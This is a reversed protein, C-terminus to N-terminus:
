NEFWNLNWGQDLGLDLNLDPWPYQGIDDFLGSFTTAELGTFSSSVMNVGDGSPLTHISHGAGGNEFVPTHGNTADSLATYPNSLPPTYLQNPSEHSPSTTPVPQSPARIHGKNRPGALKAGAGVTITGFYPVTIKCSAALNWDKKDSRTRYIEGLIHASEAAVSGGSEGAAQHLIDVIGGILEWDREDEERNHDPSDESYGHLHLILLMAMTFAMFDITKCLYSRTSSRLIKYLVLSERASQIAMRHCFNFRPNPPYKLMFPLHLVSRLVKPMFQMPIRELYHERTENPGPESGLSSDPMSNWADMLERDLKLTNELCMEGPSQNRDIIHGTIVGIRLMYQETTSEALKLRREVQPLFYADAIVYPLGLVLSISRDSVALSCWLKLRREFLADGPQPARTSLHMGALHALEIARRNILWSKRLRGENMHFKSLLMHCEIGPLTAAFDDDRVVLREVAEGCRSAYEQPDIPVQLSSFEFEPRSQIVCLAICVLAKAIDAPAASYEDGAKREAFSKQLGPIDAEWIFWIHSCHTLIIDIDKDPPFLSILEARVARAKPSMDKAGTFQDNTSPDDRRKVFYNDFLQMIPANEIRESSPGLRDPGPSTPTISGANTTPIQGSKSILANTQDLKHALSQVVTELHAVRERLSYRETAASNSSASPDDPGNEQDLCKSGRLRCESCTDRRDNDYTCRIKRRRCESCSKTGKRMKKRPPGGIDSFLDM